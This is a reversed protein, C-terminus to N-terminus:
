YEKRIESVGYTKMFDRLDAEDRILCIGHFAGSDRDKFGATQEGTCISCRIVPVHRVPDYPFTKEKKRGFM